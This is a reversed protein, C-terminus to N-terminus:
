KGRMILLLIVALCAFMSIWLVLIGVLYHYLNRFIRELLPKIIHVEIFSHTEPKAAYGLVDQIFLDFFGKKEGAM